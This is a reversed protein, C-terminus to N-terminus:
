PGSGALLRAASVHLSNEAMRRQLSVLLLVSVDCKCSVAAGERGVWRSSAHQSHGPACQHQAEEM